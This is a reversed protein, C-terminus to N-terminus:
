WDNGGRRHRLDGLVGTPLSITCIDHLQRRSFFAVWVAMAAIDHCSVWLEVEGETSNPGSPSFNIDTLREAM